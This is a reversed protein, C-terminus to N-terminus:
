WDAQEVRREVLEQRVGGILHRFDGGGESNGGVLDPQARRPQPLGVRHEPWRPHRRPM